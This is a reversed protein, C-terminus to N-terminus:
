IIQQTNGKILFAAQYNFPQYRVSYKLQLINEKWVDTRRKRAQLNDWKAKNKEAMSFSVGRLRHQNLSCSLALYLISQQFISLFSLTHNTVPCWLWRVWQHLSHSLHSTPLSYIPVAFIWVHMDVVHQLTAVIHLSLLPWIWGWWIGNYYVNESVMKTIIDYYRVLNKM